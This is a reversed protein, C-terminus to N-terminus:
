FLVDIRNYEAKHKIHRRWTCFVAVSFWNKIWYLQWIENVNMEERASLSFFFGLFFGSFNFAKTKRWKNITKKGKECVCACVQKFKNEPIRENSACRFPNEWLVTYVHEARSDNTMIIQSHIHKFKPEREREQFIWKKDNRKKKWKNWQCARM